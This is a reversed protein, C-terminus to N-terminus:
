KLKNIEIYNAETILLAFNKKLYINKLNEKDQKEIINEKTNKILYINTDDNKLKIEYNGEDIDKGILFYGMPLFKFSNYNINDKVINANLEGKLEVKSNSYKIIRIFKPNENNSIEKKIVLKDDNYYSFEGNGTLSIIYGGDSLNLDKLYTTSNKDLNKEELKVNKSSEKVFDIDNNNKINSIEQKIRLIDKEFILKLNGNNKKFDDYKKLIKNFLEKETDTFDKYSKKLMKIEKPSLSFHISSNKIEDNLKEVTKNGSKGCSSLFFAFLILLLITKNKM